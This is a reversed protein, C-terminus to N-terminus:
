HRIVENTLISISLNQNFWDFLKATAHKLQLLLVEVSHAMFIHWKTKSRLEPTEQTIKVIEIVTPVPISM